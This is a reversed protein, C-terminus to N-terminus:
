EENDLLKENAFLLRCIAHATHWENTEPDKSEFKTLHRLCASLDDQYPYKKWNEDVDHKQEGYELIYAVSELTRKFKLLRYLPPKPSKNEM